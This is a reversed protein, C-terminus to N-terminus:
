SPPIEPQNALYDAVEDPAFGSSIVKTTSVFGESERTELSREFNFM